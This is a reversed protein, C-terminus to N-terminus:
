KSAKRKKRGIPKAERLAWAVYDTSGEDIPLTLFEPVKYSHLEKLRAFLAKTNKSPTKLVILTEGDKCVANEWWYLSLVGPVLNACAILREELLMRAILEAEKPPATVLVIQLKPKRTLKAAKKM